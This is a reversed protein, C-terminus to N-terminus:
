RKSRSFPLAPMVESSALRQDAAAFVFAPGRYELNAILCISIEKGDGFLGKGM